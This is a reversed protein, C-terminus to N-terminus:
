SIKVRAESGTLKNWYYINYEDVCEPNKIIQMWCVTVDISPSGMSIQTVDPGKLLTKFGPDRYYHVILHFM